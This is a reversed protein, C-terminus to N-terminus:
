ICICLTMLDDSTVALWMAQVGRTGNCLPRWTLWYCPTSGPRRGDWMFACAVWMCNLLWAIIGGPGGCVPECPFQCQQKFCLGSSCRMLRCGMTGMPIGMPSVDKINHGIAHTESRRQEATGQMWKWVM